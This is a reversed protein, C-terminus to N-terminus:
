AEDGDLYDRAHDLQVRAKIIVPQLAPNNAGVAEVVALLAEVAAVMNACIRECRADQPTRKRKRFWALIGTGASGFLAGGAAQITAAQVQPDTM